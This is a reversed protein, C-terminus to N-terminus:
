RFKGFPNFGGLTPMKKKQTTQTQNPVAQKGPSAQPESINNGAQPMKSVNKARRNAIARGMLDGWM